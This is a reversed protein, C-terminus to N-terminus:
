LFVISDSVKVTLGESAQEPALTDVIAPSQALISSDSDLVVKDKWWGPVDSVSAPEVALIEVSSLQLGSSALVTILANSSIITILQEEMKYIDSGNTAQVTPKPPNFTNHGM